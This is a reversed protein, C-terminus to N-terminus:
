ELEVELPMVIEALQAVALRRMKSYKRKVARLRPHGRGAKLLGLLDISCEKLAAASYQTYRELNPPWPRGVRLLIRTVYVTSAAIMTPAYKLMTYQILVLETIYASMMAFKTDVFYDLTSVFRRVLELTSPGAMNIDTLTTLMLSEMNYIERVSYAKDCIHAWAYEEPRTNDKYQVALHMAAIGVLQLRKRSVQKVSLFRDIIHVTLYMTEPVLEFKLHVDILWDILIARMKDNIETQKSMYDPCITTMQAYTNADLRVNAAAGARAGAEPQVQAETAVAAAPEDVPIAAARAVAEREAATVVREIVVDDDSDNALAHLDPDRLPSAPVSTRKSARSSGSSSAARRKERPPAWSPDQGRTKM